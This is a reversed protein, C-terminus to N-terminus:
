WIDLGWTWLMEVMSRQWRSIWVLVACRDSNRTLVPDVTYLPHKRSV